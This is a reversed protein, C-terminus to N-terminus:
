ERTHAGVEAAEDRGYGGPLALDGPTKDRSGGAQGGGHVAETVRRGERSRIRLLLYGSRCTLRFTGLLPFNNLNFKCGYFNILTRNNCVRLNYGLDHSYAILYPM